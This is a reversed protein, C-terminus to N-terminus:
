GQKAHDACAKVEKWIHPLCAATMVLLVNDWPWWGVNDAAGSMGYAGMVLTYLIGWKLMKWERTMDMDGTWDAKTQTM